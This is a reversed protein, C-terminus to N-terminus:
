DDAGISISIGTVDVPVSVDSTTACVHLLVIGASADVGAVSSGVVTTHCPGVTSAAAVQTTGIEEAVGGARVSVTVTTAGTARVNATFILPQSGSLEAVDFVADALWTTSAADCYFHGPISRTLKM